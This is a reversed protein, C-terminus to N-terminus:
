DLCGDQPTRPWDQPTRPWDQPSRPWNQPSQPWNQPSRPWDLPTQPRIGPDTALPRNRALIRTKRFIDGSGGPPELPEGQTGRHRQHPGQPGLPGLFAGQPCPARPAGHPARPAGHAGAASRSPAFRLKRKNCRNCNVACARCEGNDLGLPSWLGNPPNPSMQSAVMVDPPASGQRKTPNGQRKWNGLAWWSM